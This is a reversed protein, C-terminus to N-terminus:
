HKQAKDYHRFNVDSIADSGRLLASADAYRKEQAAQKAKVFVNEAVLLRAAETIKQELEPTSGGKVRLNEAAGLAALYDGTELHEEFSQALSRIGQEKVLYYGGTAVAGIAVIAGVFKLVLGLIM